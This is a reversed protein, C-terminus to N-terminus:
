TWREDMYIIETFDTKLDNEWRRRQVGFYMKKEKTHSMSYGTGQLGKSKM